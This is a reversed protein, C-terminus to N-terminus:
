KNKNTLKEKLGKFRWIGLLKPKESGEHFSCTLMIPNALSIFQFGNSYKYQYYPNM